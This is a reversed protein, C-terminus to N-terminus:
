VRLLPRRDTISTVLLCRLASLVVGGGAFFGILTSDVISSSDPGSNPHWMTHPLEQMADISYMDDLSPEASKQPVDTTRLSDVSDAANKRAATANAWSPELAQGLAHLMELTGAVQASENSAHLMELMEACGSGRSSPLNMGQATKSASAASVFTPEMSAGIAESIEGVAASRNTGQEALWDNMADKFAKYRRNSDEAYQQFAEMAPAVFDRVDKMNKFSSKGVEGSNESSGVAPSRSRSREKGSVDTDCSSSRGHQRKSGYPWARRARAVSM